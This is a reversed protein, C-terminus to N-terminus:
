EGGKNEDTSKQPMDKQLAGKIAIGGIVVGVVLTAAVTLLSAIVTNDIYM